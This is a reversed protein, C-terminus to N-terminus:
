KLFAKILKAMGKGENVLQYSEAAAPIVFTEAYNFRHTEGNGTKVLVSQGEVLMMVHCTGETKLTLERLFEVRHVDYFHDFHTPLHVVQYGEGKEIVVPRSLLEEKVRSGKRQFNLNNFAHEINIPRPEGNLDLRLWDYMKFTFIYPTASIELVLNNAGSSHITGHPILFFDHKHAPHLQVHKEIDVPVNEAVSNELELRFAAADINERFGLFVGAGPKCDLIYYTEDQTIREGFQERIYTLTPHCQISLHGGDFTDLFDFRIPFETGFREAATGLIAVANYEMLWDFSLEMLYGDSEFVLGNEPVILEFSWAYNVEKKPLAPIHDKLWQGGWAGAEFWPRARFVNHVADRFGRTLSKMAAWCIDEKWQGDAVVRIRDRIQRRHRNLVVWDVFYYRKYMETPLMPSPNGINTATGARMRYQLENKPLDIYLVPADWGCLAAGVGIIISIGAQSDPKLQTLKDMLYFDQLFLSTKKGWVTGPEGLYPSVMEDIAKGPKEFAFTEYWLVRTSGKDLFASLQERIVVWDNGIYGDIIVAKQRSIWEALSAYGRFIHGNGLRRFPYIDYQGPKGDKGPLYQPMLAQASKRWHVGAQQKNEKVIEMKIVQAAGAIAALEMNASIILQAPVGEKDLTSQLVPLFLPYAKSISGGLVVYAAGFSRIWPILCDALNRGFHDFVELAVGDGGTLARAAIDSVEKVHTGSRRSYAGLLWKASIYDEAIGEKFRTNYLVGGPPVGEGAKLVHTFSIFAAGFGTGLTVAIIRRGEASPGALSEGLGFCAADNEFCIPIDQKIELRNLLAAGINIGYLGEYKNVGNLLSVGRNYAFPGPMAIGIGQLESDPRKALCGRMVELWKDLIDNKEGQTDLKKKCFTDELVIGEAANVLAASIHSGGIDVGLIVKNNMHKFM